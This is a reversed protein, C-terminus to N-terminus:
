KVAVAEIGTGNESTLTLSRHKLEYSVTGDFLKLLEREIDM